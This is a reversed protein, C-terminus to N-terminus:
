NNRLADIERKLENVRFDIAEKETAHCDKAAFYMPWTSADFTHRFMNGDYEGEIPHPFTEGINFIWVVM